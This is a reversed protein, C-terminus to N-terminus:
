ARDVVDAADDARRRAPCSSPPATCPMALCQASCMTGRSRGSSRWGAEVMLPQRPDIVQPKRSRTRCGIGHVVLRSPRWPTPSSARDARRRDDDVRDRRREVTGPGRGRHRFRTCIGSVASRTKARATARNGPRGGIRYNRREKSRRRRRRSPAGRLVPFRRATSPRRTCTATEPRRRDVAAGHARAAASWDRALREELRTACRWWMPSCGDGRSACGARARAVIQRRRARLRRRSDKFKTPLRLSRGPLESRHDTRGRPSRATWFGIVASGRHRRDTTCRRTWRWCRRPYCAAPDTTPLAAAPPGHHRLQRDGIQGALAYRSRRVQRNCPPPSGGRRCAMAGTIRRASSTRRAARARRGPRRRRTARRARPKIVALLSQGGAIVKPRRARRASRRRAHGPRTNRIGAM